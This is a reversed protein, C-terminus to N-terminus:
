IDGLTECLIYWCYKNMEISIIKIKNPIYSTISNNNYDDDIIKKIRIPLINM